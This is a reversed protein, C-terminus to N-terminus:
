LWGIDKAFHFILSNVARLEQIQIDDKDPASSLEAALNHLWASSKILPNGADFCDEFVERAESFEMVEM